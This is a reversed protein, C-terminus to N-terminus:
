SAVRERHFYTMVCIRQPLLLEARRAVIEHEPYRERLVRFEAAIMDRVEEPWTHPDPEAEENIRLAVNVQYEHCDSVDVSGADVTDRTETAGGM